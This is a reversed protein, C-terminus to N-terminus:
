IAGYNRTEDDKQSNDEFNNEMDLINTLINSLQRTETVTMVIPANDGITITITRNTPVGNNFERNTQVKITKAM